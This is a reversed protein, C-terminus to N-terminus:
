GLVLVVEGGEALHVDDVLGRGSAKGGRDSVGRGMLQGEPTEQIGAGAQARCGSLCPRVKSGSCLKLGTVPEMRYSKLYVVVKGEYIFFSLCSVFACLM